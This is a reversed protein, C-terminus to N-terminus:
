VNCSFVGKEIELFEAGDWPEFEVPLLTKEKNREGTSEFVGAPRLWCSARQPCSFGKEEGYVFINFGHVKSSASFAHFPHFFIKGWWSFVHFLM